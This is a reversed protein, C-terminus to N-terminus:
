PDASMSALVYPTRQLAPESNRELQDRAQFACPVFCASKEEVLSITQFETNRTM